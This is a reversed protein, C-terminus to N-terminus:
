KLNNTIGNKVTTISEVLRNKALDNAMLKCDIDDLTPKYKNDIESLANEKQAIESAIEAARARLAGLDSSLTERESNMLNITETKKMNGNEVYGKFVKDIEDLYYQADTLLKEKTVTPDLSLGMTIAMSYIQPNTIGGSTVAKFFEFFDYGPKNLNNFGKEYLALIKEMHPQCQPSVYPTTNTVPTSNVPASNVPAFNTQQVNSDPFQNTHVVKEEVKKEKSSDDVFFLDKFGM